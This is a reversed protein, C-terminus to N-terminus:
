ESTVFIFAIMCEHPLNSARMRQLVATFILADILSYALRTDYLPPGVDELLIYKWSNLRKACDCEKHFAIEPVRTAINSGIYDHLRHAAV